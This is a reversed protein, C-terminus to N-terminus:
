RRSPERTLAAQAGAAVKRIRRRVASPLPKNLTGRLTAFAITGGITPLWLAIMHYVIVATLTM